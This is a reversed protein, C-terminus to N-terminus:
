LPVGIVLAGDINSILLSQVHSLQSTIVGKVAATESPSARRSQVVTRGEERDMSGHRPLPHVNDSSEHHCRPDLPTLM